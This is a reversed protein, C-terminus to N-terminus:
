PLSARGGGVGGGGVGLEVFMFQTHTRTPRLVLTARPDSPTRNLQYNLQASYAVGQVCWNAFHECNNTVVNYGAAGVRSLARRVTEDRPLRSAVNLVVVKSGVSNALGEFETLPVSMVRADSKYMVRGWFHVVQGNGVYVGHHFLAPM